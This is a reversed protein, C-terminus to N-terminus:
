FAIFGLSLNRGSEIGVRAVCREREWKTKGERERERAFSTERGIESQRITDFCNVCTNVHTEPTYTFWMAITAEFLDFDVRISFCISEKSVVERPKWGLTVKRERERLNKAKRFKQRHWKDDQTDELPLSPLFSLSFFNVIIELLPSLLFTLPDFLSPLSPFFFYPFFSFHFFFQLYMKLALLFPLSHFFISLSLSLSFFPSYSLSHSFQPSGSPHLIDGTLVQLLPFTFVLREELTNRDSSTTVLTDQWVKKGKREHIGESANRREVIKEREEFKRGRERQERKSENEKERRSVRESM